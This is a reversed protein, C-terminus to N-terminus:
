GCLNRNIPPYKQDALPKLTQPKSKEREEKKKEPCSSRSCPCPPSPLPCKTSPTELPCRNRLRMGQASGHKDVPCWTTWRHQMSGRHQTHWPCKEKNTKAAAMKSNDWWVVLLWHRIPRRCAEQWRGTANPLCHGDPQRASGAVPICGHAQSRHTM